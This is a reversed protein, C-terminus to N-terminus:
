KQLTKSYRHSFRLIKIYTMRDATSNHTLRSTVDNVAYVYKIIILKCLMIEYLFKIHIKLGDVYCM